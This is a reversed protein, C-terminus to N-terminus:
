KIMSEVVRSLAFFQQYQHKNYDSYYINGININIITIIIFLISISILYQISFTIKQLLNKKKITRILM